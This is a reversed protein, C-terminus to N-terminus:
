RRLLRVGIPMRVALMVAPMWASWGDGRGKVRRAAKKRMPVKAVFTFCSILDVRVSVEPPPDPPSPGRVLMWTSALLPHTDIRQRMWAKLYPMPCGVGQKSKVDGELEREEM